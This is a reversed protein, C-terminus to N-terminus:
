SRRRIRKKRRRRRKKRRRCGNKRKRAAFRVIMFEQFTAHLMIRDCVMLPM